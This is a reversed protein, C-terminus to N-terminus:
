KKMNLKVIGANSFLRFEKSTEGTERNVDFCISGCCPSSGIWNDLWHGCVNCAVTFNEENKLNEM